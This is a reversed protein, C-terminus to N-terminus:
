FDFDQLSLSGKPPKPNMRELTSRFITAAAWNRYWKKDAPLIHWPAHPTNTRELLDEYARQYDDWLKRDDIDGPNFKWNKDPDQLRAILRQRQEEKSIHLFIKVITTGGHALLSEFDNILGYRAKWVSEPALNRVRVALVDEYHSRNFVAVQGKAPCQQHIRWLFDHSLEEESPKKFSVARCGQPNMGTIVHRVVGDKGSTDMGQLVILLSRSGEAFLREQLTALAERETDLHREADDRDAIGPSSDPDILKLSVPTGPSLPELPNLKPM